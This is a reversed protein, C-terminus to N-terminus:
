KNRQVKWHFASGASRTRWNTSHISLCVKSNSCNEMLENIREESLPLDATSIKEGVEEVVSKSRIEYVQNYEPIICDIGLQEEVDRAFDAKSQGEGHVIFLKRPKQRFGKLWSLLENRDAHGSFGEVSYVEANVFIEEGFIKVKKCRGSNRRGWHAKQRTDSM